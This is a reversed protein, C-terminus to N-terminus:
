AHQPTTLLQQQQQLAEAGLASNMGDAAGAGGFGAMAQVLQDNSVDACAVSPAPSNATFGRLQWDLGAQGLSATGTIQNNTGNYIQFAGTHPPL